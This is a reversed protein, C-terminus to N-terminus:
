PKPNKLRNIRDGIMRAQPSGVPTNKLCIEFHKIATNTDNRRLAIEALGSNVDNSNPYIKLLAEFDKQAEDIRESGLYALARYLQAGYNTGQISLVQNLSEIAAQHRGAQINIVGKNLLSPVDNPKLQLLRDVANLANTYSRFVSAIQMVTTLTLPDKPNQDMMQRLLANAEETRKSVFLAGAEAQLLDIKRIGLAALEETRDRLMSLLRIAKEPQQNMVYLRSLWFAAQVSDPAVEHVRELNQAAQRFNNGQAFSLGLAFRHTASDFPGTDRMVQEWTRYRGLEEELSRPSHIEIKRGAKLDRNFALNHRAALNDPFCALATQFQQRAEDLRGARQLQVGWFNLAQSYYGGLVVATANPQFPIRMKERLVRGFTLNTTLLPPAIFPILRDLAAKKERWFAENRTIETESPLEGSLSNTPYRKLDLTLQNARQDFIEFYYGFSPHLYSIPKAESLRLVISLLANAKVDDTRKPDVIEPWDGPHRAKQFAHYAPVTLLQTDLFFREGADKQQALRGQALYLKRSDDSLVVGGAPLNQALSAAYDRLAPGNTIRIQPLNMGVLGIPIAVLLLLIVGPVIRHLAHQFATTRGMRDPLPRFVLLFYGAFYGVSLASLYSLAPIAYGLRRPSFKPDFAIWLGFLLLAAHAFHFIWTTLASGMKSPDGFNSSWRIGIILVPLISTLALLLLVNMRAGGAFHMFAQKDLALNSKLATWFSFVPQSSMVHITPLLLYLLMGAVGCLFMRSLFRANFFELRKLWVVSVLMAPFLVFMIWNNAMAAGCVLSARFMWSDKESIRYEFLCRIVYALLLLDFIDSAGTTSHEWITLQLGCVLVAFLPPIWAFQNSLLAGASKERLRQDHTRDRPMLAVSRALLALCLAGCLAAFLNFASPIWTVPLWRFPYTVLFFLPNYLEPGWMWGSARAVLALNNLSIWHNFTLLYLLLAGGAILWPLKSAVFSKDPAPKTQKTM